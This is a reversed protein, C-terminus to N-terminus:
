RTNEMKTVNKMPHDIKVDAFLNFQHTQWKKEITKAVLCLEKWSMIPMWERKYVEDLSRNLSLWMM